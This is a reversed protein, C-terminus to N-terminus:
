WKDLYMSWKSTLFCCQQWVSLSIAWHYLWNPQLNKEARDYFPFVKSSLGENKKCICVEAIDLLHWYCLGSYPRRRHVLMCPWHTPLSATDPSGMKRALRAPKGPMRSFLYLQHSPKRLGYPQTCLSSPGPGTSCIPPNPNKKVSM